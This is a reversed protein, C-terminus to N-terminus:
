RTTEMNLYVPNGLLQLNGEADLVDARIWHRQGDSRWETRLRQEAAAVGGPQLAPGAHGDLVLKVRSGSCNVVHIVISVAMGRPAILTDGMAATNGGATAQLELLRNGSATLDVFVHGARISSFIAPVSLEKAYVVTAPEGISGLEPRHTDSGGIATLRLGSDLQKEWFAVDLQHLMRNVGANGGNIAEIANVMRMDTSKQRWGCGICIEGDPLVPHNISILEGLQHAKRLLTNISPAGRGPVRFDLFDTSGYVNAHGAYTTIEKGPILLLKDFYPQLEREADYQSTTNHDTIAVFDLGRKAASDLTVFVPCPVSKDSQSTCTGDSHGTHMHLDGRYWRAGTELPGPAFSEVGGQGARTFSVLARYHVTKGPRINAVGILLKWQGSIIPGPLYSPTADAVGITFSKKNGGSWGRFRQPDLIGLDLVAHDEGGTYSFSVSLREVGGPVQFPAEVYGHNQAARIAGQLVIGTAAAARAPSASVAFVVWLAVCLSGLKKM